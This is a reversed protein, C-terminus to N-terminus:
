DSERSRGNSLAKYEDRVTIIMEQTAKDNPHDYCPFWHRAGIPFSLAQILRPHDPSEEIFTLGIAYRRGMGFKEGDGTVNKAVYLVTFSLTDAYQYSRALHVILQHPPQEFELSKGNEDLVSTVTFTEADFVCRTFDDKFPSLTITNEGWFVKRDEDFRLKVKYHIADYDRSRESQLPRSYVDIKQAYCMPILM